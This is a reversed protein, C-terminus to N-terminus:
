SSAVLERVGLLSSVLGPCLSRLLMSRTDRKELTDLLLEPMAVSMASTFEPITVMSTAETPEVSPPFRGTLVLEKLWATSGKISTVLLSIGCLRSLERKSPVLAVTRCCLVKFRSSTCVTLASAKPERADRDTLFELWSTCPKVDLLLRVMSVAM